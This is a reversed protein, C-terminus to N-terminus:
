LSLEPRRSRAYYIAMLSVAGLAIFTGLSEAPGTEPLQETVAEGPLEAVPQIEPEKVEEPSAQEEEAPISVEEPLPEPQLTQQRIFYVGAAIVAVLIIAVVIFKRVSGGQTSQRM